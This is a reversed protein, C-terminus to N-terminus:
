KCTASHTHGRVPLSRREGAFCLIVKCSLEKNLARKRVTKKTAHTNTHKTQTNTSCAITYRRYQKNTQKNTETISAKRTSDLSSFSRHVFFLFSLLFVLVAFSTFSTIQNSRERGGKREKKRNEAHDRISLLRSLSSSGLESHFRSLTSLFSSHSVSPSVFCESDAQGDMDESEVCPLFVFCPLAGEKLCFQSWCLSVPSFTKRWRKMYLIAIFTRSDMNMQTHTCTHGHMHLPSVHTPTHPSSLLSSFHSFSPLCSLSAKRKNIQSPKEIEREIDRMTSKAKAWGLPLFSRALKRNKAREKREANKKHTEQLNM